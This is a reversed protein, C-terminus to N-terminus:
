FVEFTSTKTQATLLDKVRVEWRGAPDNFAIPIRRAARGDPALLNGSYYRVTQGPMAEDTTPPMVADLSTLHEGWQGNLARLSGYRERLWRRMPVLPEDSSDFDWFAALRRM